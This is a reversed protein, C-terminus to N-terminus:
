VGFSEGGDDRKTPDGGCEAAACPYDREIKILYDDGSVLAKARYKGISNRVLRRPVRVEGEREILIALYASLISNTQELAAAREKERRLRRVVLWSFAKVISRVGLSGKM